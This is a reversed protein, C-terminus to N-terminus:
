RKGRIKFKLLRLAYRDAREESAPDLILKTEVVEKVPRGAVPYQQLLRSARQLKREQSHGIEHALPFLMDNILGFRLGIEAPTIYGDCALADAEEPRLFCVKYGRKRVLALLHEFLEFKGEIPGLIWNFEKRITM